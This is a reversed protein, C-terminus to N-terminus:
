DITNSFILIDDTYIFSLKGTVNKFIESTHRQFISPANKLDFHMRTFDFHVLEM